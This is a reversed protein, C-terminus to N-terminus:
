PLAQYGDGIAATHPWSLFEVGNVHGEGSLAAVCPIAVDPILKEVMKIM